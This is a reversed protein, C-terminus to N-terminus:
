VITIEQPQIRELGEISEPLRGDKRFQQYVQSFTNHWREELGPQKLFNDPINFQMSIFATFSKKNALWSHFCGVRQFTGPQLGQRVILGRCLPPRINKYRVLLAYLQTSEDVESPVDFNADLQNVLTAKRTREPLESGMDMSIYVSQARDTQLLLHCSRLTGFVRLYGGKLQGTHDDGVTDVQADLVTCCQQWRQEGGTWLYGIPGDVSAWSWTPARYKSPRRTQFSSDAKAAWLIETIIRSRWLGAIYEDVLIKEYRKAIGSLAVLRDEENTLSRSSYNEVIARWGDIHIDGEVEPHIIGDQRSLIRSRNLISNDQFKIFSRQFTALENCEWSLQQTGFHLIRVSLFKEQLAWARLALPEFTMDLTCEKPSDLLWSKGKKRISIL